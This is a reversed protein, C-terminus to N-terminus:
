ESLRRGLLLTLLASVLLVIPKPAPVPAPDIPTCDGSIRIYNIDFDRLVAAMFGFGLYHTNGFDPAGLDCTFSMSDVEDSFYCYQGGELWWGGIGRESFDWFSDDDDKGYCPRRIKWPPFQVNWVM